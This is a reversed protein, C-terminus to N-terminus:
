LKFWKNIGCPRREILDPLAFTAGDDDGCCGGIRSFLEPFLAKPLKRGDCPIGNEASSSYQVNGTLHHIRYCFAGDDDEGVNYLLSRPQGYDPEDIVPGKPKADCAPCVARGSLLSGVFVLRGGCDKCEDEKM